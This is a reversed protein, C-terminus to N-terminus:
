DNIKIYNDFDFINVLINNLKMFKIFDVTKTCITYRNDLPHFNVHEYETIKIDLYFFIKNATDNLLGYPTVAGPEVNLMKKLYENRAFSINGLNLKSKLLKLDVDTSELCSFLFFINKKNKLFLNKTHSGPIVGRLKKSEDVTFLPEHEYIEYSIKKIKLLNVLKEKDM